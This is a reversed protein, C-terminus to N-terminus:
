SDTKLLLGFEGCIWGVRNDLFFIENLIIDEDLSVDTWETDTKKKYLITGFNGVAYLYDVTQGLSFLHYEKDKQRVAWDKGGNKTELIVGDQGVIWGLEEDQFLVDFLLKETLSEQLNWNKGGDASHLIVGLKGVAWIKQGNIVSLAYLDKKHSHLEILYKEELSKADDANMLMFAVVLVIYGLIKGAIKIMRGGRYISVGCIGPCGNGM